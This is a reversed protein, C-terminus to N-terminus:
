AIARVKVDIGLYGSRGNVRVTTRYKSVERINVSTKRYWEDSYGTASFARSQGFQM